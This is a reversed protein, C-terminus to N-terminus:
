SRGATRGSQASYSRVGHVIAGQDRHGPVRRQNVPVGSLYNALGVSNDCGLLRHQSPNRLDADVLLVRMGLQALNIALGLATTSKGESPRASTVLISKPTGSETSFQLATRFSRFAEALPSTPADRVKAIIDDDAKPIAGLVALGLQEEVEEPAKFTDDLLELVM